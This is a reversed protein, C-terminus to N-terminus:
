RAKVVRFNEVHKSLAIEYDDPKLVKGNLLELDVNVASIIQGIEWSNNNRSREMELIALFSNTRSRIVLWM